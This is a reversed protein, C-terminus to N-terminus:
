QRYRGEAVARSIEAETAAAVQPNLRGLAKDQYFERVEAATWVHKNSTSPTAPDVHAEQPTGPGALSAMDVRAAAGVSAPAPPAPPQYGPMSGTTAPPQQSRPQPATQGSNGFAQFIEVVADIKGRAFNKRLAALMSTDDLPSVPTENAWALFEPDSNLERWGAVRSDLQQFLPQTSVQQVSSGIEALRQELEQVKAHQNLLAQRYTNEVMGVRRDMLELLEEGYNDVDEDTYWPTNPKPPPETPAPTRAEAVPPADQLRAQLQANQVRLDELQRQLEENGRRSEADVRGKLSKYRQEWDIPTVNDPASGSGEPPTTDSAVQDNPPSEAVASGGSVNQTGIETARANALDVRKQVEPPLKTAQEAM